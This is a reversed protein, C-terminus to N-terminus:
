QGHQQLALAVFYALQGPTTCLAVLHAGGKPTGEGPRPSRKRCGHGYAMRAACKTPYGERASRLDKVSASQWTEDLGCRCRVGVGFELLLNVVIQPDLM